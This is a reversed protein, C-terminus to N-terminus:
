VFIAVFNFNFDNVGSAILDGINGECFDACLSHEGFLDFFGEGVAADIQSDVAQFVQWCFEGLLKFNGGNGLAFIGAIRKTRLFIGRNFRQRLSCSYAGTTEPALRLEFSDARIYYDM